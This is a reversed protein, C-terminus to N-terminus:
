SALPVPHTGLVGVFEEDPTRSDEVPMLLRRCHSRVGKACRNPGGGRAACNPWKRATVDISTNLIQRLATFDPTGHRGTYRSQRLGPNRCPSSEPPPLMRIPERRRRALCGPVFPARGVPRRRRHWDRFGVTVSCRGPSRRRQGTARRRKFLPLQERAVLLPGADPGGPSVPSTQM